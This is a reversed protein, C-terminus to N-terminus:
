KHYPRNLLTPWKSSIKSYQCIVYPLLKVTVFLRLSEKQVIVTTNRATKQMELMRDICSFMNDSFKLYFMGFPSCVAVGYKVSLMILAEKGSMSGSLYKNSDHCTEAEYVKFHIHYIPM